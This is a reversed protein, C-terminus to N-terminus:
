DGLDASTPFRSWKEQTPDPASSAFVDITSKNRTASEFEKSTGNM